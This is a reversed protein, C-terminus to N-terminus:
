FEAGPIKRALGIEDMILKFMVDYGEDNPHLGDKLLSDLPINKMECYNLFANYMSIFPFGCEISAKLYLDSVDCMHFIRWYNEGDKENNASAPINACFIVDKGAIKFKEYLAKINNYFAEMYEQKSKKEGSQFYQHRNNTGITCLIIDDEPDVLFDFKEIIFQINTGSCGNNVVECNYQAEMHEKFQKAWCYGDPNRAFNTVIKEGSQKYGTGGVGHTISDGLLKIRVKKDSLIVKSFIKSVEINM